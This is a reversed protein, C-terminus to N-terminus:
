RGRGNRPVHARRKAGITPSGQTKGPFRDLWARLEVLGREDVQYLHRAGVLWDDVLGAEKLVRLHQSVAPRTVPVHKAIEGVSAPGSRLRELILCRTVNGLAILAKLYAM